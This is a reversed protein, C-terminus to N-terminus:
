TPVASGGEGASAEEHEHDDDEGHEAFHEPTIGPPLVLDAPRSATREGLLWEVRAVLDAEKAEGIIRFARSGDRDFLATAPISTALGLAAMEATTGDFRVPFSIHLRKVLDRAADREEPDDISVGLTVLGRAEFRRHLRELAPLEKRCPECWSAWYNVVVVRGRYAGLDAEARAATSLALVAALVTLIPM